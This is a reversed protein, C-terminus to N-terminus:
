EEAEEEEKGRGVLEPEAMVEEAVPEEEEAEERTAILVFVHEEPAALYEIGPLAPLNAVTVPTELDLGSIDVEIVAPIDAPLASLEVADLQQLVMLGPMLAAPKGVGVVQVSVEQKESMNVAYLDVHMFAHTVPHRQIERVLVNHVGGGDVNVTVLQSYGGHHLTLELARANVQLNMPSQNKGYVVMPVLGERRLQRVKRGTITRPQAALTLESM